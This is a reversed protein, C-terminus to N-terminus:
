SLLHKKMAEFFKDYVKEDTTEPVTLQINLNIVIGNGTPNIKKNLTPIVIDQHATYDVENNVNTAKPAIPSAVVNESFEAYSAMNKFTNVTHQLVLNGATSRTKFFDTLEDKNLEHANPYIDYLENYSKQLAQGLITKGNKNSRFQNWLETPTGNDEAFGIFKLIAIMRQESAKKFGISSFWKPDVKSPQGVNQIKQLITKISGTATSYPYNM